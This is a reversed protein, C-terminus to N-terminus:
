RPIYLGTRNTRDVALSSAPLASPKILLSTRDTYGGDAGVAADDAGLQVDAPKSFPVDAWKALADFREQQARQVLLAYRAHHRASAEARAKNYEYVGGSALWQYSSRKNM